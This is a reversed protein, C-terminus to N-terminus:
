SVVNLTLLYISICAIREHTVDIKRASRLSFGNAITIAFVCEASRLGAREGSDSRESDHGGALKTVM